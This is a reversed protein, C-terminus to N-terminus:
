PYHLKFIVTGEVEGAKADQPVDVRVKIPHSTSGTGSSVSVPNQEDTTFNNSDAGKLQLLIGTDTNDSSRKLFIGDQQGALTNQSTMYLAHEIPQGGCDVSIMVDPLWSIVMGPTLTGLNVIDPASVTCTQESIDVTVTSELTGLLVSGSAPASAFLVMFLIGALTHIRKRIYVPKM